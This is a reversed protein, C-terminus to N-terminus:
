VSPFADFTSQQIIEQLKATLKEWSFNARVFDHGNGAIYDAFSPEDLLRLIHTAYDQPDSGLLIEQGDAAGLANNALVSSVCPMRMAMAELLKNQLGTGIQMPAVFVSSANYCSRLDDVWGTVTVSPSQLERIRKAPHAGAILLRINPKHQRILPLIKEALYAVANINPPYAMNGTFVIDYKKSTTEPAFYDFDVGNPIIHILERDDHPILERDPASIIIKNDFCSFIDKEYRLLRKHELALVPKMLLNSSKIRRAVGKSFVDQYDLTKPINLHKVYESVRILQCFIHDPKESSVIQQIKKYASADYFYGVQLPKGSFFANVVGSCISPKRLRFVHISKCFTNLENLAEPHIDEDSLACLIIDNKKSLERLHHYARLKDGKILPWPVRSLM